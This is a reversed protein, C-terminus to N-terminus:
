LVPIPHISYEVQAIDLKTLDLTDVEVLVTTETTSLVTSFNFSNQIVKSVWIYFKHM